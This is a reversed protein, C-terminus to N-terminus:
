LIDPLVNFAVTSLTYWSHTHLDNDASVTIIEEVVIIINGLKTFQHIISTDGCGVVVEKLFYNCSAHKVIVMYM